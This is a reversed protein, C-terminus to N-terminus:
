AARVLRQYIKPLEGPLDSVAEIVLYHEPSCMERLYDHGALDVTICFPRVGARQVERLAVATDRIGYVHSQRDSGYDLDQPFGDSLLVLHRSPAMVNAMKTLAHRLATGMRTSGRPELGGIRSQVAPTLRETFAKVPYVEVNDRGQGSFGYIAYLDGIEELASAMIVLSDKAIDIIRDATDPATEDTSASLDLLFLTAVDREERRRTAYLKASAPQGARRQVRADVVANLDIVEGDELGHVRRYREPRLRLFHRRVEPVLAAHRALARDFALGSDGPLEVERVRCWAPRYDGIVHDWEDYFFVAAEGAAPRLGGGIADQARAGAAPPTAREALRKGALQTVYLGAQAVVDGRGQGLATEGAAELLRRLAEPDLPRGGGVDGLERDVLLSLADRLEAPLTDDDPPAAGAAHEAGETAGPPGDGAEADLLITVLDPLVGLGDDAREVDPFLAALREAVRLADAATAGAHELERLSPLVLRAVARLWAPLERRDAGPRLALALIADFGDSVTTEPELLSESAWRLDAGVGPYAAALRCAVRFGDAFLFLDELAGPRGPARLVAAGGALVDYTGFERRGALLAATLRYLRANDECTGLRDIL